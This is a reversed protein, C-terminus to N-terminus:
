KLLKVLYNIKVKVISLFETLLGDRTMIKLIVKGYEESEVIYVDKQGSESFKKIISKLGFNEIIQYNEM